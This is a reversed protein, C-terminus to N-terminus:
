PFRAQNSTTSLFAFGYMEEEGGRGKERKGQTGWPSLTCRVRSLSCRCALTIALKGKGKKKKGGGKKNWFSAFHDRQTLRSRTPQNKKEGEEAGFLSHFLTSLIWTARSGNKKKKKRGARHPEFRPSSTEETTSSRRRSGCGTM